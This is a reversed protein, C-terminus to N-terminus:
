MRAIDRLFRYLIPPVEKTSAVAVNKDVVPREPHGCGVGITMSKCGFRRLHSTVSDCDSDPSGDTIFVVIDGSGVQSKTADFVEELPTGGNSDLTAIANKVQHGFDQEAKKITGGPYTTVSFPCHLHDMVEAIQVVTQKFGELVGSTSGSVDLYLHVRGRFNGPIVDEYVDAENLDTGTAIAFGAEEPDLAEGDVDLTYSNGTRLHKLLEKTKEISLEERSKLVHYSGQTTAAETNGSGGYGGQQGGKGCGRGTGTPQGVGDGHLGKVMESVKEEIEKMEAESPEHDMSVVVVTASGNGRGQGQTSPKNFPNPPGGQQGQDSGPYLLKQLEKGWNSLRRSDTGIHVRNQYASSRVAKLDTAYQVVPDTHKHPNTAAMTRLADQVRPDNVGGESIITLYALVAMAANWVGMEGPVGRFAVLTADVTRQRVQEVDSAIGPFDRFGQYDYQITKALSGLSTSLQGFAAKYDRFMQTSYLIHALDAQVSALQLPYAESPTPGCVTITMTVDMGRSMAVSREEGEVVDILNSGGMVRAMPTLIDAYLTVNLRDAM